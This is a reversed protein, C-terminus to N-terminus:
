LLYFVFMLTPPTLCSYSFVALLQPEPILQAHLEIMWIHMFPCLFGLTIEIFCELGVELLIINM